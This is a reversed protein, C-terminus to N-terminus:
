ASSRKLGPHRNNLAIQLLWDVTKLIEARSRWDAAGWRTTLLSQAKEIMPNSSEGLACARAM